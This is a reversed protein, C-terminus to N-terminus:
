RPPAIRCSHQRRRGAAAHLAGSRGERVLLHDPAFGPDSAITAVPVAASRAMRSGWEDEVVIVGSRSHEPTFLAAKAAFYDEMTPHFDLHDQSLNTFGSVSFVAGDARHQALAHSSVEMSCVDVGADRMRAFLRHLDPAEPTTRVSSEVRGAITTAVTGILGTTLGLRTLLADLIFATTTKGNTGTLGYLKLSSAIPTSCRLPSAASCLARPTSWSSPSGTSTM